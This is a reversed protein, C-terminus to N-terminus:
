LGERNAIYEAVKDSFIKLAHNKDEAVVEAYLNCGVKEIETTSSVYSFEGYDDFNQIEVGAKDKLEKDNFHQWCKYLKQGEYFIPSFKDLEWEIIDPEEYIEGDFNRSVFLTAIDKAKEYSSCITIIHKDSYQGKQVVWVSSM